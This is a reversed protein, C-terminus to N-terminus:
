ISVEFLSVLFDGYFLYLVDFLISFLFPLLVLMLKKATEKRANLRECIEALHAEDEYKTTRIMNPTIKKTSIGSNM